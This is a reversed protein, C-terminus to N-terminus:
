EEWCGSPNDTIIGNFLHSFHPESPQHTKGLVVGFVPRESELPSDSGGIGGLSCAGFLCPTDATVCARQACFPSRRGRPRFSFYAENVQLFAGRLLEGGGRKVGWDRCGTM